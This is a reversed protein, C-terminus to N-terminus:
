SQGNIKDLDKVFDAIVKRHKREDLNEQLVKGAAKVAMNVVDDRLEVLAQARDREIEDRARGLMDKIEGRAEEKIESAIKQGSKVAEQVRARAEADIDRLKEEYQRELKEVDLRRKEAEALESQIREKREDLVRLLPKWAFKKMIWLVMLFGIIQAVIQGYDLQM